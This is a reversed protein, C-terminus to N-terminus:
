VSQSGESQRQSLRKFTQVSPLSTKDFNSSNVKQKPVPVSQPLPPVYVQGKLCMQATTRDMLAEDLEKLPDIKLQNKSQMKLERIM